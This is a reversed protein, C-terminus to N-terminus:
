WAGKRFLIVPVTKLMIGIDNWVSQERIYELDYALKRRVDDLSTDYQQSIQALGTIGPRTRQRLPYDELQDALRAFISPREPRPGVINMDGRLVNILQPMEDLRTQRLVRGIFTVRPDDQSAWVAGSEREAHERMTRFKYIVFPRGGLDCSRRRGIRAAADASRTNIGIRTQTYFIPGRSTLKILIAIVIFVPLAAFLSLAAVVVNLLRRPGEPPATAADFDVVEAELSPRPESTTSLPQSENLGTTM